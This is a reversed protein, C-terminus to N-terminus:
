GNTHKTIIYKLFNAISRGEKKAQEQIKEDTEPDLSVWRQVRM